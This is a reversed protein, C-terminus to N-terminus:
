TTASKHCSLVQRLTRISAGHTIVMRDAEENETSRDSHEEGTEGATEVTVYPTTQTSTREIGKSEAEDLCDNMNLEVHDNHFVILDEDENVTRFVLRGRQWGGAKNATVVSDNM